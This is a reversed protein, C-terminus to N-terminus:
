KDNKIQSVSKQIRPVAMELQPKEKSFGSIIEKLNIVKFIMCLITFCVAGSISGFALAFFKPCFSDFINFTFITLLLTPVALLSMVYIKNMIQTKRELKKNILRINLASSIIMCAGTGVILSTIGIFQTLSLIIVLLMIGGIVYNVFSKSEMGLANLVTSSINSLALPIMLWASYLLYLGAKENNYVFLGIDQWMGMYLPVILISIFISFTFALEIQSIVNEKNKQAYQSSLEPLLVMALSGVLTSPVFLLPMTMGVAIGFEAMAEQHTLGCLVLQLPIIIAILPQMASTAVRVGTIPTASKLIKRYESKPNALRNGKYFYYFMVMLASFLCAVSLSLGAIVGSSMTQGLAYLMVFFFLIRLVQEVFESLGVIFYNKKGWLAGRFASYIASFIVSPLLTLIILVTRSDAFLRELPTDFIFILICLLLSLVLSIILTATTARNVAQRDKQTEYIATFKSLTLPLGSSVLMMLVGVMSMAVQYVGLMEAGMEWSLYIRFVFGLIRTLVAFLTILAVAKFIENLKIM